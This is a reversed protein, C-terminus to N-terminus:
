GCSFLHVQYFLQSPWCHGPYWSPRVGLCFSGWGGAEWGVTLRNLFVTGLGTSVCNNNNRLIIIDINITIGGEASCFIILFLLAPVIIIKM